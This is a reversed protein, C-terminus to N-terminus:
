SETEKKPELAKLMASRIDSEAENLIHRVIHDSVDRISTTLGDMMAQELKPLLNAALHNAREELVSRMSEIKPKLIADVERVILIQARARARSSMENTIAYEVQRLINEQAGQWVRKSFEDLEDQSMLKESEM